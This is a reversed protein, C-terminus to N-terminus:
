HETMPILTVGFVAEFEELSSDLEELQVLLVDYSSRPVYLQPRQVACQACPTQM